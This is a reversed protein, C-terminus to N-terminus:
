VIKQGHLCRGFTEGPLLGLQDWMHMFDWHEYGGRLKGDTFKAMVTGTVTVVDGTGANKAYCSCVASIWDGQEISMDIKIDIERLQACILEHFEKFEEKRIPKQMGIEGIEPDEDFLEEIALADEEEWVRKYWNELADRLGYM